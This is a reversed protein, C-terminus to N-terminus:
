DYSDDTALCAGRALRLVIGPAIAAFMGGRSCPVITADRRVPEVCRPELGFLFVVRATKVALATKNAIRDRGRQGFGRLMPVSVQRGEPLPEPLAETWVSSRTLGGKQCPSVKQCADGGKQVALLTAQSATQTSALRALAGALPGADSAALNQAARDRNYLLIPRATSGSTTKKNADTGQHRRFAVIRGHERPPARNCGPIWKPSPSIGRLRHCNHSPIGAGLFPASIVEDNTEEVGGRLSIAPSLIM